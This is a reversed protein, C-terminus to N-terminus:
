PLFVISHAIYWAMDNIKGLLPATYGQQTVPLITNAILWKHLEAHGDAFSFSGCHNHYGAPMDGWTTGGSSAIMQQGRWGAHNGDNISDAQEDLFVFLDAPDLHIYDSEKNFAYCAQYGQVQNYWWSENQPIKTKLAAWTNGEITINMSASRVRDTPKGNNINAQGVIKWTDSPCKYILTQGACFPGLLSNQLYSVNTNDGGNNYLAWQGAPWSMGGHVWGSTVYTQGASPEGSINPLLTGNNENAYMSYALTMEKKNSIDQAARASPLIAIIAIVVLLEILTFGPEKRASPLAKPNLHYDTLVATQGYM